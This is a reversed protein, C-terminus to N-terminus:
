NRLRGKIKFNLKSLEVMNDSLGGTFYPIMRAVFPLISLLPSFTIGPQSGTVRVDSRHPLQEDALHYHPTM